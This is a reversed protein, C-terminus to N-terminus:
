RRHRAIEEKADREKLAQRKDHNKKGVGVAIEIKVWSGKLYIRVPVITRGQLQTAKRLKNLEPSRLLLGRERLPEHNNRNAELYPSIHCGHLVAGQPGVRVWAEQLNARGARLSKVESGVLVLGAEFRDELFYDYTARRNSVLTREAPTASM